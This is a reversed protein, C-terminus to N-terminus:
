QAVVARYFRTSGTMDLTVEQSAGNLIVTKDTTWQTLDETSEISYSTGSAGELTMSLIGNTLKVSGLLPSAVPAVGVWDVQLAGLYTFHYGNDNNPGPTIGIAIEGAVDAVVGIVTATQDINNAPNYDVVAEAAGNITYRTERNDGVGSRSAYFTLDYAKGAELGTLKFAPFINEAGSWLETNGYLSDRTANIAFPAPDQTGNENAGTFRSVMQIGFPTATGDITVLGNLVGDNLAGIEATLNNWYEEVGGVGYVTSNASSGFDVLVRPTFPISWTVDMAGLYTFHSGNNNNPGPAIDIRIEGSSDPRIGVVETTNDVNNATDLDASGTNEGTLTFRTERNDSVGTRAGYFEFDYMAEPNLGTLKFSPLVDSLGNFVETNGFLSDQTATTPFVTAASSGSTNAGNFRAIMELAAGTPTGDPTVLGALVGADDSGIATTVNNWYRDPEPAAAESINASGGFDFLWSPGGGDTDIQMVGLYTFHNANDNNPGPSMVIKVQGSSDPVVGSVAITGDVNNAANFDVSQTSGGIVTYRTERNDSVGMRSAYFTFTYTAGAPLGINFEPLVNELANFAETNGYLSDRTASVPYLGSDLSGNENAANFRSWMELFAATTNGDSDVLDYLYGLDDQAIETTINNWHLPSGGGGEQTIFEPAGFDFLMQQAFVGAPSFGIVGCALVLACKLGIVEPHNKMKLAVGSLRM